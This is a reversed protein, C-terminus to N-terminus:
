SGDGDEGDEPYRDEGGQDQFWALSTGGHYDNGGARGLPGRLYVDDGAGELFVSISNHAAAGLSFAGGRYLDEGARDEFWTVSEDWALGHAVANRTEYRDDGGTELFWGVAQHASFGQDYRSGIYVDDALGFNWLGGFGFYYGGGQAFNGAEFRDQGAGDCLLGLGGSADGRFGVGCGQSWGEFVGPTGYGTPWRGKAYYEDDGWGDLCLGVGGALGVAQGYRLAEYRDDGYGDVIGGIGWAAIGQGQTQIRYRDNGAGDLLLGLGLFGAGQSWRTGVYSDEGVLDIVLGVGLVGAGLSGDQTSEYVDDGELDILVSVPIRPVGAQNVTTGVGDAYLDSGGLDLFLAVADGAPSDEGQRGWRHVDDDKGGVVIRGYPTPHSLVEAAWVDKKAKYLEQSLVELYDPDLLPEFLAPVALLPAPDVAEGAAITARNRAYRDTDPDLHLYIHDDFRDALDRWHARVHERASPEVGALSAEVQGAAQALIGEMWALHAELGAGKAPPAPTDAVAPSSLDAVRALRPGLGRLLAGQELRVATLLDAGMAGALAPLRWPERHVLPVLHNSSGDGTDALRALRARLDAQDAGLGAAEVAAAIDVRLPAEDASYHAYLQETPPLQAGAAEPRRGLVVEREHLSWAVTLSLDTRKGAALGEELAAPDVAHVPQGDRTWTAERRLFGAALRDGPGHTALLDVLASRAGDPDDGLRKGAVTVLLDGTRFGSRGAPGGPVVSDLRVAAVIGDQAAAQAAAELATGTLVAGFWAPERAPAPDEAPRDAPAAEPGQVIADVAHNPGLVAPALLGLVPLLNM